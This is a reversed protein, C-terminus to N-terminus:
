DERDKKRRAYKKLAESMSRGSITEGARYEAMAERVEEDLREAAKGYLQYAPVKYKKGKWLHTEYGVFAPKKEGNSKLLREYERRPVAVLEERGISSKPIKVVLTSAM